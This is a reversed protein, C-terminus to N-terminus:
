VGLESEGRSRVEVARGRNGVRNGIAVPAARIGRSVDIHSGDVIRRYRDVIANGSRLEQCDLLVRPSGREKRNQGIVSIHIAVRQDDCGRESRVARRGDDAGVRVELEDRCGIEVAGGRNGVRNGIAVAAARARRNINVHGRDVVCRGGERLGDGGVLVGWEGDGEGAAVDFAVVEGVEFNDGLWLEAGEGAAACVAGVGWVGVVM